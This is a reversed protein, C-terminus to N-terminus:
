DCAMTCQWRARLPDGRLIRNIRQWGSGEREYALGPRNALFYLLERNQQRLAFDVLSRCGDGVNDGRPAVCNTVQVEAPINFEHIMTEIVPFDIRTMWAAGFAAWDRREWAVQAITDQLSWDHDWIAYYLLVERPISRDRFVVPRLEALIQRACPAPSEARRAMLLLLQWDQTAKARRCAVADLSDLHVYPYNARLADVLWDRGVGPALILRRRFLAIVEDLESWRADGRARELERLILTDEPWRIALPAALVDADGPAPASAWAVRDGSRYGRIRPYARDLDFTRMSDGYSVDFRTIEPRRVLVTEQIWRVPARLHTRIFERTGASVSWAAPALPPSQRRPGWLSDQLLEAPFIVGYPPALITLASDVTGWQSKTLGPVHLLYRDLTTDRRAWDAGLAGAVAIVVEPPLEADVGVVDEGVMDRPALGVTPAAALAAATLLHQDGTGHWVGRAVTGGYQAYCERTRQPPDGEPTQIIRVEAPLIAWEPRQVERGGCLAVLMAFRRGSRSHRDQLSVLDERIGGRLPPRRWEPREKAPGPPSAASAPAAVVKMGVGIIISDPRWGLVITLDFPPSMAQAPLIWPALTTDGRTAVMSERSGNYDSASGLGRLEPPIDCRLSDCRFPRELGANDEIDGHPNPRGEIFSRPDDAVFWAPAFTAERAVYRLRVRYRDSGFSRQELPVLDDM